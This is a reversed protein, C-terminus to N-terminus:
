SNDTADVDFEMGDKVKVPQSSAVLQEEKKNLTYSVTFSQTSGPFALQTVQQFTIEKEDWEKPQGNVIINVTKKDNGM